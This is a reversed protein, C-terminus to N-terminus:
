MSDISEIYRRATAGLRRDNQIKAFETRAESFREEEFLILARYYIANSNQPDDRLLQNIKENANLFDGRDYYKSLLLLTIDRNFRLRNSREYYEISKLEDGTDEYFKGMNRYINVLISESPETAIFDEYAAIAAEPNGTRYHLLAVNQLVDADQRIEFAKNYWHLANVDDEISTYLRGLTRRVVFNPVRNDFSELAEIARQPNNLDREYIQAIQRVYVDNQPELTLRKNIARITNEYDQAQYYATQMNALMQGIKDQLPINDEEEARTFYEFAEEYKAAAENFRNMSYLSDAEVAAENGLRELPKDPDATLFTSTLLLVVFLSILIHLKM